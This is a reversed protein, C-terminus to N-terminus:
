SRLQRITYIGPKKKPRPPEPVTCIFKIKRNVSLLFFSFCFSSFYLITKVSVQLSVSVFPLNIHTNHIINLRGYLLFGPLYGGDGSDPQNQHPDHKSHQMSEHWLLYRKIIRHKKSPLPLSTHCDKFKKKIPSATCFAAAAVSSSVALILIM